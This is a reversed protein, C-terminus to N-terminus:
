RVIHQVVLVSAVALMLGDNAVHMALTNVTSGTRERVWGSGIGYFLAFPFLLFPPQSPIHQAGFLVATVLIAPAAPLRQRVWGFLAGRYLLEEALASLLTARVVILCLSLVDASPLTRMDTGLRLVQLLTAPLPGLLPSFALYVLITAALILIEVGLALLLDGTATYHFGLRTRVGAIGGFVLMLAIPLALYVEAVILFIPGGTPSWTPAVANVGFWSGVGVITALALWLGLALLLRKGSIIGGGQPAVERDHDTPKTDQFPPSTM